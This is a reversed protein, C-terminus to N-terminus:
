GCCGARKPASTFLEFSSVKSRSRCSSGPHAKNVSSTGGCRTSESTTRRRSGQATRYSSAIGLNCFVRLQAEMGNQTTRDMLHAERPRNQSNPEILDHSTGACVRLVDSSVSRSTLLIRLLKAGPECPTEFPTKCLLHAEWLPLDSLGSRKLTSMTSLTRFPSTMFPQSNGSSITEQESSACGGRGVSVVGGSVVMVLPGLPLTLPVAAVNSNVELSSGPEVKWHRNCGRSDAGV